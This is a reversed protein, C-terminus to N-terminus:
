KDNGISYEFDKTINFTTSNRTQSVSFTTQLFYSSVALEDRLKALTSCDKVLHSIKNDNLLDQYRIFNDIQQLNIIINRLLM